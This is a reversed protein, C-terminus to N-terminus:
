ASEVTDLAVAEKKERAMGYAQRSLVAPIM